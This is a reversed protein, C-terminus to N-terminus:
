FDWTDLGQSPTPDAPFTVDIDNVFYWTDADQRVTLPTDVELDGLVEDFERFWSESTGIGEKAEESWHVRPMALTGTSM